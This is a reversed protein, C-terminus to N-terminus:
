YLCCNKHAWGLYRKREEYFHVDGSTIAKTDIWSYTPPDLIKTEMSSNSSDNDTFLSLSAAVNVLYSEKCDNVLLSSWQIKKRSTTLCWWQVQGVWNQFSNLRKLKLNRSIQLSSHLGMRHVLLKCGTSITIHILKRNTKSWGHLTTQNYQSENNPATQNFYSIVKTFHQIKADFIRM